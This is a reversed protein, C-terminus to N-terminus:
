TKLNFVIPVLVWAGIAEDGRRAAVFTWRRVADLAAQDLHHSESSTKIELQSPRGDPEVFVRLVVKGEERMRRSLAPYTPAPNLLYNADFRPQSLPVPTVPTAVLAPSPMSVPSTAPTTAAASLLESPSALVTAPALQTAQPRAAPKREVVVPHPSIVPAVTSTAAVAPALMQVMLTTNLPLPPSLLGSSAVLLWFVAGHAGAIGTLAGVSLGQASQYGDHAHRTVPATIFPM